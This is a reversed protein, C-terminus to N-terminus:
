IRLLKTTSQMLNSPNERMGLRPQLGRDLLSLGRFLVSICRMLILTTSYLYDIANTIFPLIKTRKLPSISNTRSNCERVPESLFGDYKIHHFVLPKM